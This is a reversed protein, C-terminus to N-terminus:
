GDPLAFEECTGEEPQWVAEYPNDNCVITLFKGGERKQRAEQKARTPAFGSHDYHQAPCTFIDRDYFKVCPLM